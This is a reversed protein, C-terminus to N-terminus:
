RHRRLRKRDLGAKAIEIEGSQRRVIEFAGNAAVFTSHAVSRYETLDESIPRAFDKQPPYLRGDDQWREPAFPVGSFEDEVANLTSTILALATQASGVASASKLREIFIRFREAKTM